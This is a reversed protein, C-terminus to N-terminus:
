TCRLPSSRVAGGSRWRSSGGTNSTTTRTDFSRQRSPTEAAGSSRPSRPSTLSTSPPSSRALSADWPVPSLAAVDQSTPGCTAASAAPSCTSSSTSRPPTSSRPPRM